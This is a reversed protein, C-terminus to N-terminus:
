SVKRLGNFRLHFSQASEDFSRVPTTFCSQLATLFPPKGQLALVRKETMVCELDDNQLVVDKKLIKIAYVRHSSKKEALM